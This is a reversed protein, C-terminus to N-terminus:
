RGSGIVITDLNRPIEAPDFPSARVMTARKSSGPWHTLYKYVAFLSLLALIPWRPVLALPGLRESLDNTMPISEWFLPLSTLFM